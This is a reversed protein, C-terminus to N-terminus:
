GSRSLRTEISYMGVKMASKRAYTAMVPHAAAATTAAATTALFRRRSVDQLM